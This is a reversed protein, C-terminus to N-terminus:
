RCIKIYDRTLSPHSAIIEALNKNSNKVIYDISKTYSLGQDVAEKVHKIFADRNKDDEIFTFIRHEAEKLDEGDSKEPLTEAMAMNENNKRMVSLEDQVIEVTKRFAEVKTTLSSMDDEMKALLEGPDAENMKQLEAVKGTLSSMENEIKGLLEGPVTEITKQLKTVKGTLSSMEDEMKGLLEGTDAEDDKQLEAVKETLSSMENEIKGLLEGPVTEITKQLKTVKGTLSSMEDEIKGLIEGPAAKDATLKCHHLQRGMASIQEALKKQNDEMSVIRKDAYRKKEVEKIGTIKKFLESKDLFPLMEILKFGLGKEKLFIAKYGILLFVCFLFLVAFSLALGVLLQVIGFFGSFVAGLTGWFGSNQPASLAFVIFLFIAGVILGTKILPIQSENKDM